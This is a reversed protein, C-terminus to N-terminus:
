VFVKASNEDLKGAVFQNVMELAAAPQDMPVMHGANFVQMFHFNKFSRLRAVTEGELQWDKDEAQNFDSAGDWELSKTWAKNGLWNCIYDCDGAYILVEVGDNLLEPILGHFPQMWDGALQFAMNVAYNCSEWKKSVGLAKQVEATNLWAEMGSFDYCLNGHECPIRQDYPNKGTAKLPIQSMINCVESAELCETNNVGPLATGAKECRDIAAVCVPTALKMAGYVYKNFMGPAHGGEDKGGDYGMQAYWKYQEKPNTLGNGISIGKMPIEVGQKDKNGQWIRHGIAPVYHGGYSEGFIYFGGNGYQPLAKFFNQLFVYMNNAVGAEDHTGFGTSFGVGAPQDVWMVNAKNHWSFPNAVPTTGNVTCPGNEALLALQSSCGPGGSLWMILPDSAPDSKSEFLWFFYKAPLLKNSTADLWGATQKVSSDCITPHVFDDSVLSESEAALVSGQEAVLKELEDLSPSLLQASGTCLLSAGLAARLSM